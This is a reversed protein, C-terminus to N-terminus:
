GYLSRSFAFRFVSLSVSYVSMWLEFCMSILPMFALIAGYCSGCLCKSHPEEATYQLIWVRRLHGLWWSQISLHTCIVPRFANLTSINVLITYIHLSRAVWVYLYARPCHRRSCLWLVCVRSQCGLYYVRLGRPPAVCVMTFVKENRELRMENIGRWAYEFM